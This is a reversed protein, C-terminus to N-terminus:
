AAPALDLVIEETGGDLRDALIARGANRLLRRMALNEALMTASATRAGLAAALTLAGRVLKRGIGHGQWADAVAFAVEAGGRRDAQVTAHGVIEGDRAGAENLVAVLGPDGALSGVIADSPAAWSLFRRRRSEPSLRAYFDLLAGADAPDARRISVRPARTGRPHRDAPRDVLAIREQM